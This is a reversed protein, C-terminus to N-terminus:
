HGLDKVALKRVAKFVTGIKIESGNFLSEFETHDKIYFIFAYNDVPLDGQLFAEIAKMSTEVQKYIDRSLERGNETFVGITM